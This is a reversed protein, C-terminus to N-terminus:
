WGANDMERKMQCCTCPLCLGTYIADWCINGQIGRMMRLKTRMAVVGTPCCCPMLCHEGMRVANQSGLCPLCFLGCLCTTIDELCGLSGTSWTNPGNWEAGHGQTVTVTGITQGPQQTVTAM